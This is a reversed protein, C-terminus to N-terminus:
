LGLMRRMESKPIAGVMRDTEKGNRLVIFCPISRVKHLSAYEAREDVDIQIVQARGKVENALEHVLPKVQQCPPCWTASFELLVPQKSEIAMRVDSPSGSGSPARSSPGLASWTIFVLLGGFLYVVIDGAKM